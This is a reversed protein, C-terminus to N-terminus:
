QFLTLNCVYEHSLHPSVLEPCRTPAPDYRDQLLRKRIRDLGESVAQKVLLRGAAPGAINPVSTSLPNNFLGTGASYSGNM